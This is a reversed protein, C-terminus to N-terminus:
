QGPWESGKANDASTLGNPSIVINKNRRQEGKGFRQHEMTNSRASTGGHGCHVIEKM